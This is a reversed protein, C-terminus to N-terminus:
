LTNSFRMGNGLKGGVYETWCRMLDSTITAFEVPHWGYLMYATHSSVFGKERLAAPVYALGNGITLGVQIAMENRFTSYCFAHPKRAAKRADRGAGARYSACAEVRERIPGIKLAENVSEDDIWLCWREGGNVLEQTGGYRRLFNKVESNSEIANDREDDELILRKGDVPNSGMVMVSFGSIPFKRAAATIQPGPVLYPSISECRMMEGDAYLRPSSKKRSSLGVITCWVGANNKASNAWRFPRYAFYISASEFIKPWLISVQEGQCISSTTVLAMNAGQDRVMKLGKVLFACVYDLLQSGGLGVEKMDATQADSKKKAGLYPPNGCIYTERAEGGGELNLRRTPGGLDQDEASATLPPCVEEWDTRLANGTVITGTAHLPLVLARAEMQGIFRVDCQFEAILLSLRAIEAAFSKIEIGYFQTLSIASRELAEGRRRMIEDEIERMRIYAIVLFNGSGCAPDFVRIRSLRERINFLM